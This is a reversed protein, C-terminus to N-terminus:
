ELPAPVIDSLLTLGDAREEWNALRPSVAVQNYQKFLFIWPAGEYALAQAKDVLSKRDNRDIVGKLELYIQEFEESQWRIEECRPSRCGSPAVWRLEGVANAFGGLTEIALPGLSGERLRTNFVTIEVPELVVDVGIAKLDAKLAQALLEGLIVEGSPSYTMVLSMPQGDKEVIGDGDADMWGAEALLAKAKEPDYPYPELDTNEWFSNAVGALLKGKGEYISTLISERNTGYNMAQRVRVDDLGQVSVDFQVFVNQFSNVGRLLGKGSSEIVIAQDPPVKTIVDANGALLEAVRTSADPVFRFKVGEFSVPGGYYNDYRALTLHDGKVWEVFRYPGSGIPNLALDELPIDAYGNPVIMWYRLQDLFVATPMTTFIDVTYEDVVECYDLNGDIVFFWKQANVTEDKLRECNYVVTEANFTEGNHFTVDERLKLRWQTDTITEWSVALRPVVDGTNFDVDALPEFIHGVVTWELFTGYFHPDLQRPDGTLLIMVPSTDITTAGTPPAASEQGATAGGSPAPAACATALMILAIMLVLMVFSRTSGKM